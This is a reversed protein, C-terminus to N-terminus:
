REGTLTPCPEGPCCPYEPPPRKVCGLLSVVLIQALAATIAAIALAGVLAMMPDPRRNDINM